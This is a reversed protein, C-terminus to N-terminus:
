LARVRPSTEQQAQVGRNPKGPKSAEAASIPFCPKLFCLEIWERSTSVRLMRIERLAIKRIAPDEDTEVFKKIAVIQLLLIQIFISGSREMSGVEGNDRNRCKFVVGYSGEGIKGIREYKDLLLPMKMPAEPPQHQQQQQSFDAQQQISTQQVAALVSPMGGGGGGNNGAERLRHGGTGTPRRGGGGFHGATTLPPPGSAFEM